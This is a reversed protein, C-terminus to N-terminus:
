HNTIPAQYSGHGYGIAGGVAAVGMTMLASDNWAHGAWILGGGIAAYALMQALSFWNM